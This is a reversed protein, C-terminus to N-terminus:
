SGEYSAALDGSLRWTFVGGLVFVVLIEAARALTSAIVADRLDFGTLVAVGGILFERIGLAGPVVTVFRTLVAASTFLLCAEIGVTSEGMAFCLKLGLAACFLMGLQCFAVAPWNRRAEPGVNAAFPFWRASLLERLRLPLVLLGGAALMAGFGLGMIGPLEDPFRLVLLVLGVLGNMAVILVLLTTQGVAFHAFPLAYVRKLFVAKAVLGASLPLYNTFSTVTVLRFWDGTSAAVGLGSFHLRNAIARALLGLLTLGAAAAFLGPRLSYSEAIHSRNEYLFGSLVALVAITLVAPLWRQLARRRSM